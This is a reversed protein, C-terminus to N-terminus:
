YLYLLLPDVRVSTFTVLINIVAQLKGTTGSLAPFCSLIITLTKTDNKNYALVICTM